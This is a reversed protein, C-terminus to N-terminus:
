DVSFQDEMTAKKILEYLAGGAPYITKAYYLSMNGSKDSLTVDIDPNSLLYDAIDVSVSASYHMTSGMVVFTLAHWGSLNQLNPDM